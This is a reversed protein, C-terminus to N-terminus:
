PLTHASNGYINIKVEIELKYNPAFVNHIIKFCYFDKIEPGAHLSTHM